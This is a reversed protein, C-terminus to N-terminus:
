EADWEPAITVDALSAFQQQESEDDTLGISSVMGRVFTQSADFSGFLFGFALSASLIAAIPAHRGPRTLQPRITSSVESVHSASLPAEPIAAASRSALADGRADGRGTDDMPDRTAVRAVIDTALADLYRQDKRENEQLLREFAIEEELRQQADDVAIITQRLEDRLEAPWRSLDAGYIDLVQELRELKLDKDDHENTM